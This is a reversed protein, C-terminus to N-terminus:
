KLIKEAIFSKIEEMNFKELAVGAVAIIKSALYSAIHASKEIGYGSTYGYLFGGAYIDGCGTSDLVKEAPYVPIQVYTDDFFAYSGSGGVKVLCISVDSEARIQKGAEIPDSCGTLIKMEEFNGFLIDVYENIVAKLEDRNREICFPDAIDFSVKKGNKKMMKMAEILAEKQLPTDFEYGTTHFIASDALAEINLDSKTFEECVGLHTLMTREADPSTLVISTGTLGTDAFRLMSKVGRESIKNEYLRGYIDDAVVGSYVAKGGMMAIMSISNGCSGGPVYKTKLDAIATLVERSQKEDILTMIGKTIKLKRLLKDDIFTQIDVLTNGLGFVDIAM